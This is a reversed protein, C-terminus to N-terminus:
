RGVHLAHRGSGTWKKPAPDVRRALDDDAFACHIADTLAAVDEIAFLPTLTAYADRLICQRTVTNHEHTMDFDPYTRQEPYRTNPHKTV